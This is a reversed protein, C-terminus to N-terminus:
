EPVPRTRNTEDKALQKIEALLDGSMQPTLARPEETLLEDVQPKTM